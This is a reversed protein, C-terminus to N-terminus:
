WWKKKVPKLLDYEITWYIIDSAVQSHTALYINWGQPWESNGEYLVASYYTDPIIKNFLGLTDYDDEPNTFRGYWQAFMLHQVSIASIKKIIPTGGGPFEVTKNASGATAKAVQYKLLAM